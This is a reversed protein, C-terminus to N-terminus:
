INNNKFDKNNQKQNALYQPLAIAEGKRGTGVAM